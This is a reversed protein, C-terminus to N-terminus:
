SEGARRSPFARKALPPPSSNAQVLCRFTEGRHEFDRFHPFSPAGPSLLVVVGRRSVERAREVAEELSGAEIIEAAPREGMSRAQDAIAAGNDPVTILARLPHQALWEFVVSWGVGRDLGGAILIVDEGQLAELAARTAHPSTAISDNLWRGGGVDTLIELRHPLPKFDALAELMATRDFGLREGAAMALAINGANHAGALPLEAAALLRRPGDFLGQGSGHLGDVLNARVRASAGDTADRLVPDAANIFLPNGDLLEVLRLKAEVYAAEGGHWDLHEPFLRTILGLEPRGHLDALQYSSLEVVFLDARTELHGILPDGINGALVTDVGCRRALHALLASTTSKGKSGTIAVVRAEPREAFWVTSPNVIDVGDQRAGALAPHNVPVGPSRILIEFRRLRGAEFAGTEVAANLGPKTPPSTGAEVQRGQSPGGVAPNEDFVTIRADPYRALMADVFARAERGYGLVGLKSTVLISLKMSEHNTM